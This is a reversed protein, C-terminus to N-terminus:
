AIRATTVRRARAPPDLDSHRRAEGFHLTLAPSVAREAESRHRTLAPRALARMLGDVRLESYNARVYTLGAAACGANGVEDRHMRVIAAAMEDTGDRICDAQLCSPLGPMGAFAESTGICPVAAGMSRIVKDKLGAGFRLPAVTLRVREFVDAVNAVQGLVEVGPRQLARRLEDSMGSRFLV